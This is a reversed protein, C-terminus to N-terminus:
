KVEEQVETVELVAARGCPILQSEFNDEDQSPEEKHDNVNEEESSQESSSPDYSGSEDSIDYESDADAFVEGLVEESTYVRQGSAM